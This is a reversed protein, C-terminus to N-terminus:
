VELNEIAAFAQKYVDLAIRTGNAARQPQGTRDTVWVKYLTCIQGMFAEDLAKHMLRKIHQDDHM